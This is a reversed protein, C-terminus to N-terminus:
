PARTLPLFPTPLAGRLSLDQFKSLGLPENGNVHVLIIAGERPKQELALWADAGLPILHDDKLAQMWGADSILGPFRFFVSPTEGNAILLREVDFIERDKDLGPALLFNQGTPLGPRYPHTYSHNVFTIALRGEAKERRLWDFDEPHHAIWLGSVSLAIQTAPGAKELKQLFDRDLSKRSPCLDATLFAGEGHGHKLGANDLWTAGPKLRNGPDDAFQAVLQQFRSTGKPERCTWCTRREISTDLSKSDVTLLFEEGGVRMARIALREKDANTCSQLIAQYDEVRHLRQLPGGIPAEIRAPSACDPEARAGIGALPWLAALFGLVKKM